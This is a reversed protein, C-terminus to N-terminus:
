RRFGVGEHDVRVGTLVRLGGPPLLDRLLAILAEEDIPKTVLDTVGSELIREEEGKVAHATVAIVLMGALEPDARIIRTAEDGDIGPLSIDMLVLDFRDARLMELAREASDAEEYAYGEDELVWALLKRNDPNDDVILIRASM